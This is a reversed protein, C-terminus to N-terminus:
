RHIQTGGPTDEVVWGAATLQDRIADATSWDRAVRAQDREAVLRRIGDAVDEAALGMSLGFAQEALEFVTAALSEARAPVGADRARYADNVTEFLGAVAAPTDLDDDMLTVFRELLAQEPYAHRADPFSRAFDDLRRLAGGAAQLTADSVTVPSRYHSQLFLLRLVRPDYADFIDRLYFSNGLSKSMKDGGDAMVHGCHVWHRAFRRGVGIAQARENEHHPFALDIGGGHIDFGEGLLDLSMVVCETHWGPRGPGWPSPWSPEGAKAAKWLAFDVPARKGAEASAEVRAGARLSELPQRALLGYGPITEAALYVGDGGQYAHGRAVLKAILDIMHEIYATAHPDADPRCVGLRDMAEWWVQEYRTAVACSTTGEANARAIIKDEIDTINSVYRVGLGRWVLYRRLTDFALSFRGHGLHPEGDVTPGCVYM